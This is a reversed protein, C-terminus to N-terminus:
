PEKVEDKYKDWFESDIRKIHITSEIQMGLGFDYVFKALDIGDILVLNTTGNLSSAYEKAGKSYHSTTIFIGKNSQAVALAGVFKQVEERGVSNNRAYRKAQIHIVGLGLIDEKIVGDIGGDNSYNTTRGSNLIQGGYGMKQLLEIVIIEFDRPTKRLITDLIESYM